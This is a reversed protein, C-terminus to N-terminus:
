PVPAFSADRCAVTDPFLERYRTCLTRPVAWGQAGGEGTPHDGTFMCSCTSEDRLLGSFFGASCSRVEGMNSESCRRESVACVGFAREESRGVCVGDGNAVLTILDVGGSEDYRLDGCNYDCPGGCFHWGSTWEQNWSGLFV